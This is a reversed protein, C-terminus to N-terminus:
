KQMRVDIVAVQNNSYCAAIKDGTSNWCVEFIGGAGKYTRVLEGSKVSWLHLQNDFSGSALFQGDPSFAVSYVPEAHGVLNCTCKGISVDWLKIVADFSATALTLPYGCNLPSWKITYIEKKHDALDFVFRDHKMDWIKATADDSCSALLNGTPDWKIANVEDTHGTFSRLPRTKGLECVYINKDTSCSAFTTADRWDVDLTPATHYEFQQLVEGTDSDWVIASKDVSGSLLTHGVPNWKLCFIPGQHRNLVRVLEGKENWIRALGDYSGTALLLGNSSWDLTTVDQNKEETMTSSHPLVISTKDAPYWIRATSDGSGSALIDRKPNWACIFVESSHGTLITVAREPIDVDGDTEMAGTTTAPPADKNCETKIEVSPVTAHAADTTAAPAPTDDVPSPPSVFTQSPPPLPAAAAAVATASAAAVAAAAPQQAAGDSAPQGHAADRQQRAHRRPQCKHPAVLSFHEDCDTVETGDQKVHCEVSYLFLGKQLFAVLAGPPVQAHSKAAVHCETAFTFASHAFGSEHLYRYVLVNIDDSSIVPVPPAWEAGAGGADGSM